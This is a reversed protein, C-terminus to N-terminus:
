RDNEFIKYGEVKIRDIIEKDGSYVIEGNFLIYVKDPVIYKLIEAHHTIILIGPKKDEFYKLIINSIKKLSDYDIGSDPEDLIIYKPELLIMQLIESKKKEGGSFNYNLYRELIEKNLGLEDLIELVKEFNNEKKHIKLLYMLYDKYKIEEIEIPNQFSVYIGRHVREWTNLNLINEGDVEIIGEIKLEPFGLIAKCLTTKGSGNPGMLFYIKGRKIELNINDLIKKNEIWVNLNKIKFAM